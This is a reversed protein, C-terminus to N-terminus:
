SPYPCSVGVAVCRETLECCVPFRSPCPSGSGVCTGNGDCESASTCFLGDDCATGSATNSFTCTNNVCTDITCDNSDDCDADVHCDIGVGIVTCSGGNYALRTASSDMLLTDEGVVVSVHFDGTASECPVYSFTALYGPGSVPLGSPTGILANGVRGHPVDASPVTTQGNFVYDPHTSDVTVDALVLAGSTGGSVELTVQYGGLDALTGIFVEIDVGEGAPVFPSGAVLTFTAPDGIVPPASREGPCNAPASFPYPDGQFALIILLVDNFNVVQNIDEPEVDVWTLPPASPVDQFGQIAAVADDINVTGQPPGWVNNIFSSVVDGWFKAGTPEPITSLALPATFVQDDFTARLEYAAVPVVRCDGIHVVSETWTRFVRTNTLFSLYSGDVLVPEDVWWTNGAPPNPFQTSPTQKLQFAVPAANNPVFSLYRNKPTDDPPPAATPAELGVRISVDDGLTLPIGTLDSATM